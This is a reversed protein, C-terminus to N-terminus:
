WVFEEEYRTWSVQGGHSAHALAKTIAHEFTTLNIRWEEELSIAHPVRSGDVNYVLGMLLLVYM